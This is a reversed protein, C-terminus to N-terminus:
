LIICKMIGCRLLHSPDWLSQIHPDVRTGDWPGPRISIGYHTTLRKIQNDSLDREHAETLIQQIILTTQTARRQLTYDKCDIDPNKLDVDQTSCCRSGVRANNGLHHAAKNAEITDAPLFAIFLRPKVNKGLLCDHVIMGTQCLFNIESRVVALAEHSNVTSDFATLCHILGSNSNLIQLYTATTAGSESTGFGDIYFSGFIIPADASSVEAVKVQM